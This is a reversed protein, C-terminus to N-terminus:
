QFRAWVAHCAAENRAFVLTHGHGWRNACDVLVLGNVPDNTIQCDMLGRMMATYQVPDDPSKGCTGMAKATGLGMRLTVVWWPSQAERRKSEAAAADVEKQEKQQVDRAVALCAPDDGDYGTKDDV